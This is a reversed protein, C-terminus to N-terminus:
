HYPQMRQEDYVKRQRSAMRMAISTRAPIIRLLVIPKKYIFYNPLVSITYKLKGHPRGYYLIAPLASGRIKRVLDIAAPTFTVKDM